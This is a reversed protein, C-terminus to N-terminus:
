VLAYVDFSGYGKSPYVEGVEICQLRNVWLYDPHSTQMYPACRIRLGDPLDGRAAAAYGDRGWDSRGEYCFTIKAGDDTLIVHRVIHEGVGDPRVTLYDQGFTAVCGNIKPGTIRTGQESLVMLWGSGVDGLVMPPQDLPLNMTYNFLFETEFKHRPPTPPLTINSFDPPAGPAPM